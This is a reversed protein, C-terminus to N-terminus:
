PLLTKFNCSCQSVHRAEVEKRPVERFILGMTECIKIPASIETMELLNSLNGVRSGHESYTGIGGAVHVFLDSVQQIAGYIM